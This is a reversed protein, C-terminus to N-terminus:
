KAIEGPFTRKIEHVKCLEDPSIPAIRNHAVLLRVRGKHLHEM